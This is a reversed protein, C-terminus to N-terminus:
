PEATLSSVVGPKTQCLCDPSSDGRWTQNQRTLSPHPCFTHVHLLNTLCTLRGTDYVREGNQHVGNNLSPSHCVHQPIKLQHSSAMVWRIQFIQSVYGDKDGKSPIIPERSFRSWFRMTLTQAKASELQIKEMHMEAMPNQFVKTQIKNSDALDTSRTHGLDLKSCLSIQGGM